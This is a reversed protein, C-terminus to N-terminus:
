AGVGDTMAATWVVAAANHRASSSKPLLCNWCLLLEPRVVDATSICVSRLILETSGEEEAEGTSRKRVAVADLTAKAPKSSPSQAKTAFQLVMTPKSCVDVDLPVKKSRRDAINVGITADRTPSLNGRGTQDPQKAANAPPTSILESLLLLEAPLPAKRLRVEPSKKMRNAAKIHDTCVTLTPLCAGFKGGILRALNWSAVIDSNEAKHNAYLATVVTRAPRGSVCRQPPNSWENLQNIKSIGASPGHPMPVARCALPWACTDEATAIIMKADSGMHAVNNAPKTPPASCCRPSTPHSPAALMRDALTM